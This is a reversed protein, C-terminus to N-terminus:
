NLKLKLKLKFHSEPSKTKSEVWQIFPKDSVGPVSLPDEEINIYDPDIEETKILVEGETKISVECLEEMNRFSFLFNINNLKDFKINLVVAKIKIIV